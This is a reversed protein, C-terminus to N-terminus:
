WDRLARLLAPRDRAAGDPWWTVCFLSGGIPDSLTGLVLAIDAPTLEPRTRAGGDLRATRANLRALLRRPDAM